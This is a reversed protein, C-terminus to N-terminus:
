NSSPIDNQAPGIQHLVSPYAFLHGAVHRTMEITWTNQLVTQSTHGRALIELQFKM